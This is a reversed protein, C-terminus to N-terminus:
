AESPDRLLHKLAWDPVLLDHLEALPRTDGSSDKRPFPYAVQRVTEFVALGKASIILSFKPEQLGAAAAELKFQSDAREVLNAVERLRHKVKVLSSTVRASTSATTVGMGPPMYVHGDLEVVTSIGSERLKALDNADTSGNAALAGNLKFRDMFHPWSRAVLELLSRDSFLNTDSHGRVDVFGVADDEVICFLLWSSRLSFYSSPPIAEASLHLHHIGWEAWLLDTRSQRKRGSTDNHLVLGKSQFPNIDKGNRIKTEIIRLAKEVEPDLAKPFARSTVITRPRPSIYRAAFDLWRLLPDSLTPVDEEFTLDYEEVLDSAIKQADSTFQDELDRQSQM